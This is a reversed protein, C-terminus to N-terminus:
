GKRPKLVITSQEEVKKVELNLHNLIAEILEMVEITEVKPYKIGDFYHTLMIPNDNKDVVPINYKKTKNELYIIRNQFDHLKYEVERRKMYKEKKGLTYKQEFQKKINDLQEKTVFPQFKCGESLLNM